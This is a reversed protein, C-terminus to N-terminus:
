ERSPRIKEKKKRKKKKEEKFTKKLFKETKNNWFLEQYEIEGLISREHIANM